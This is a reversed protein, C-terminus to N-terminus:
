LHIELSNIVKLGARSPNFNRICYEIWNFHIYNLIVYQLLVFFFMAITVYILSHIIEKM